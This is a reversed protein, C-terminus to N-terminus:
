RPQKELVGELQRDLVALEEISPLATWQQRDPVLRRVVTADRQLLACTRYYSYVARLTTADFVGTLEASLRNRRELYPRWRRLEAAATRSASRGGDTSAVMLPAAPDAFRMSVASSSSVGSSQACTSDRRSESPLLRARRRAEESAAAQALAAAERLERIRPPMPRGVPLKEAYSIGAVREESGTDLQLRERGSRQEDIQRVMDVYVGEPSMWPQAGAPPDGHGEGAAAAAAAVELVHLVHPMSRLLASGHREHLVEIDTLVRQHRLREQVRQRLEMVAQAIEELSACRMDSVNHYARFFAVDEDIAGGLATGHECLLSPLSASFGRQLQFSRLSGAPSTTPVAAFGDIAPSAAGNSLKGKPEAKGNHRVSKANQQPTAPERQRAQRHRRKGAAASGIPSDESHTADTPPPPLGFPNRDNGIKHGTVALDGAQVPCPSPSGSPRRSPMSPCGDVAKGAAAKADALGAAGRAAGAAPEPAVDYLMYPRMSDSPAMGVAGERASPISQLEGGAAGVLREGTAGYFIGDHAGGGGQSAGGMGLSSASGILGSPQATLLAARAAEVARREANEHEEAPACAPSLLQRRLETYHLSKGRPDGPHRANWAAINEQWAQLQRTLACESPSSPVDLPTRLSRWLDVYARVCPVTLVEECSPRQGADLCLMRNILDAIPRPFHAPLPERQGRLVRMVLPALDRSEFPHRLALLEYLVCGLSWVDSKPSAAGGQLVEPAMYLPTGKMAAEMADVGDVGSHLRRRQSGPSCSSVANSSTSMQRIHVLPEYPSLKPSYLPSEAGWQGSSWPAQQYLSPFPPAAAAEAAVPTPSYLGGSIPLSPAKDDGDNMRLPSPSGVSAGNAVAPASTFSSSSSGPPGGMTAATAWTHSTMDAGLRESIGFDGLVVSMDRSRIFVNHIKIDRHVVNHAHLYQAGLVLQVFWLMVQDLDFYMDLERQAAVHTDMDGGDYYDMVLCLDHENFLFADRQSVVCPHHLDRMLIIEQAADRRQPTTLGLLPIRKMVFVQHDTVRCVKFVVGFSGTGMKEMIRYESTAMTNQAKPPPQKPLRRQPLSLPPM